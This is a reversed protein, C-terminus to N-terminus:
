KQKRLSDYMADMERSSKVHEPDPPESYGIALLLRKDVESPRVEEYDPTLHFDEIAEDIVEVEEGLIHDRSIVKGPAQVCTTPHFNQRYDSGAVRKAPWTTKMRFADYYAIRSGELFAVVRGKMGYGPPGAAGITALTGESCRAMVIKDVEGSSELSLVQVLTFPIAQSQPEATASQTAHGAAAWATVSFMSAILVFGTKHKRFRLLPTGEDQLIPKVGGQAKARLKCIHNSFLVGSAHSRARKCEIDM